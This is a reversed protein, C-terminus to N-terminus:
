GHILIRVEQYCASDNALRGFMAVSPFKTLKLLKSMASTAFLSLVRIADTYPSLDLTLQVGM